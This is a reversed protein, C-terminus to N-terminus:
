ELVELCTIPRGAATCSALRIQNPNLILYTQDNIMAKTLGYATMQTRHMQWNWTLSIGILAAMAILATALITWPAFRYTTKMWRLRNEIISRTNANMEDMDIEITHKASGLIDHLSQVFSTMHSTMLADQDTQMQELKATLRSKQTDNPRGTNM